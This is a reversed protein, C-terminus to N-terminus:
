TLFGMSKHKITHMSLRLCHCVKRDFMLNKEFVKLQDVIKSVNEKITTLVEDLQRVLELTDRIYADTADDRWM